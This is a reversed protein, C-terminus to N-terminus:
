ENEKEKTMIEILTEKNNLSPNDLVMMLLKNLIVGIETGKYGLNLADYGSVQLDKVSLPQNKIAEYIDVLEDLMEIRETALEPNQGKNDARKLEIFLYFLREDLQYKNLFRRVAKNSLEVNVDHINTLLEVDDTEKSTFKLRKMIEKARVSSKEAHGYFHDIGSEDTTKVDPKGTDHLLVAMRLTLDKKSNRLAVMTHNGVDYLHWPTNQKTLFLIHVEPLIHKLLSTEYLLKVYDPNNSMLIKSLEDHIREKSILNISASLKKISNLTEKEISYGLQAAFRIARMMRLADESFRDIPNRVTRIIKDNIDDLGGFIDILGRSDSYAMANITLDRRSLDDELSATFNVSSPHRGDLYVGDTRFTTIEYGETSSSPIVTVTGHKIGTPVVRYHKTKFLNMVDDPTMSTTIDYDKPVKGVFFDRVCGGVVYAEHGASELIRLIAKVDEPLNMKRPEM